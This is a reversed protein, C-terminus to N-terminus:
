PLCRRCAPAELVDVLRAMVGRRRQRRHEPRHGVWRSLWRPVGGGRRGRRPALWAPLEPLDARDARGTLWAAADALPLEIRTTPGTGTIEHDTSPTILRIAPGPRTSRRTAVDDLLTTLFRTPLDAFRTRAGLDVAHVCTERARMWINERAPVVRGQATVVEASWAKAPLSDMARALTRASDRAWSRHDTRTAGSDIDAARQEASAYMPTETGTRAWALLRGIAEANSAVHALLHRRSWGPLGSPLDLDADTLRNLDGLLLDTGVAAWTRSDLAVTM